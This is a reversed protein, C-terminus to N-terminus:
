KKLNIINGYLPGMTGLESKVIKTKNFLKDDDIYESVKKTLKDLNFDSNDTIGGGIIILKPNLFFLINVIGKAILDIWEEFFEELDPREKIITPIDKTEIQNDGLILILQNLLNWTSADDEWRKGDIYWKGIEGAGGCYGTLLKNDVVIGIDIGSSLNLYVGIEIGKFQGLEIEALTAANSNNITTAPIGTKNKIIMSPNLGISDIMYKESSIIEGTKNEIVGPMSICIENIKIKKNVEICKDAIMDLLVPTKNFRIETNFKGRLLINNAEDLVVWRVYLGSISISM